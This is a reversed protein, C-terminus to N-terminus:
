YCVDISSILMFGCGCQELRPLIPELYCFHYVNMRVRGLIMSARKVLSGNQQPQSEEWKIDCILRLASYKLLM